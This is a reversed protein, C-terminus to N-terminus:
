GRPSERSRAHGVVHAAHRALWPKRYYPWRSAEARAVAMAARTIPNDGLLRTQANACLVGVGWYRELRLGNQELQARVEGLSYTQSIMRDGPKFVALLRRYINGLGGYLSESPVYTFLFHGDPKLRRAMESLARDLHPLHDFLEMCLVVDFEGEGFASLDEASGAVVDFHDSVGLRSATERAIGVMDPNLDVGTVRCGREAFFAGFRGKGTGVDLVRWAPEIRFEDAIAQIEAAYHFALPGSEPTWWESVTGPRAFYDAVEEDLGSGSM